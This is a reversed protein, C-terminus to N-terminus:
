VVHSIVQVVGFISWCFATTFLALMAFSTWRYQETAPTLDARRAALFWLFVLISNVGIVGIM